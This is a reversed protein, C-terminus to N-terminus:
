IKRCRKSVMLDEWVSEMRLAAVAQMGETVHLYTDATIRISTHGLRESVIKLNEGAELLWTACTHRLDYPRFGSLNARGLVSKFKRNFNSLTFPTGIETPFVLDFDRWYAGQKLRRKLVETRHHLLMETLHASIPITRRSAETKPDGFEFRGKDFRVLARRVKIRKNKLDVSQWDLALYEEPRMGTEVALSWLCRWFPESNNLLSQFEVFSFIKFKQRQQKPLNVGDCPNKHILDRAVAEKFASKLIMNLYRVTRPTVKLGDYLAQVDDRIIKGLQKTGVTKAVYRNLVKRYDELTQEKIQKAKVETLWLKLFQNVTVRSPNLLKPLHKEHTLAKLRAKAKRIASQKNEGIVTESYSGRSKGAKKSQLRVRVRFLGDAGYGLEQLQGAM